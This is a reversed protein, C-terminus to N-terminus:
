VRRFQRLSSSEDRKAAAKKASSAANQVKTTTKVTGRKKAPPPKYADNDSPPDSSGDQPKKSQQPKKAAAKLVPTPVAPKNPPVVEESESSDFSNTEPKARKGPAKSQVAKQEATAAPTTKGNPAENEPPVPTRIRTRAASHWHVPSLSRIRPPRIYRPTSTEKLLQRTSRSQQSPRKKPSNNVTHPKVCYPVQRP